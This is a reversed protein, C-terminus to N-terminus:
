AHNYVNRIPNENLILNQTLAPHNKQGRQPIDDAPSAQIKVLWQVLHEAEFAYNRGGRM